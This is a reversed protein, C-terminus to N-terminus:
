LMRYGVGWVTEILQPNSPDKEIKERIKRIHVTVTTIDGYVDEGWIRDFIEEKSFVRNPNRLFLLLVEYEKATLNKEKDNIFVRHSDLDVCLENKEIIQPSQQSAKKSLREYRALHSKIRAVLEAPSFPKTIYDDAGLGLGLIKDADDRKASILLIPTEKTKRIQKCVEFGNIEPLMIDLLILDFDESLAKQMGIKGNITIEVQFGEIELYDKQLEAISKDDEIILIKKM